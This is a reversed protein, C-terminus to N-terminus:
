ISKLKYIKHQQIFYKLKVYVTIPLSNIEDGEGGVVLTM